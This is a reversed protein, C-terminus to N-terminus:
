QNAIMGFGSWAGPTGSVTCVWGIYSGPQPNGSWAIDGAIYTGSDPMSWRVMFRKGNINVDGLVSFNVSPDPNNIGVSLPGFVKVPKQQQAKDGISIQKDDAFIIEDDSTRIVVNNLDSSIGSQTIQYHGIRLEDAIIFTGVSISGAVALSELTGLKQLNSSIITSGLETSSLVKQGNILYAADNHQGVDINESSYLRTPGSMMTLQSHHNTDTWVLGLGFISADRTGVFQLPHNRDIRNDTIISGANIVGDVNLNGLINVEGSNKITIRPINDTTIQLDHCSITGISALNVFPSGFGLEVNNDLITLSNAPADTGVGIRNFTSDFFVFDGINANGSVQLETLSGLKTLNSSTIGGGLANATIVPINDICYAADNSLDLNANTWLRNGLRYILQTQGLGHSWNFGKGNLDSEENYLWNGVSALSGNDTVLNKVNFTNATLTGNISVNFNVDLNGAITTNGTHHLDGRTNNLTLDTIVVTQEQIDFLKSM